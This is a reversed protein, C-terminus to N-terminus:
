FGAVQFRPDLPGGGQALLAAFPNGIRERLGRAPSGSLANRFVGRGPTNKQEM